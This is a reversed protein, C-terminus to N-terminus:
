PSRSAPLLPDAGHRDLLRGGHVLRDELRGGLSEDFGGVVRWEEELEVRGNAALGDVAHLAGLDLHGPGGLLLERDAAARGPRHREADEPGGPHGIGERHDEVDVAGAPYEAVVVGVTPQGAFQGLAHAGGHDEGVVAEGRLGAVGDGDFLVVGDGAPHDLV